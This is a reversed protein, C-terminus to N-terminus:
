GLRPQADASVEEPIEFPVLGDMAWTEILSKHQALQKHWGSALSLFRRVTTPTFRISNKAAGAIYFPFRIERLGDDGYIAQLRRLFEIDGRTRTPLFYGMRKFVSRKVLMTVPADGVFKGNNELKLIGSDDLRLHQTRVAQLNSHRLMFLVQTELRRPSSYDGCDHFAIFDGRAVKIALNRSAYPGCNQRATIVRVRSDRIGALIEGTQDSSCDNVVLVEINKYTSSLINEITNSVDDAQNYVTLVVSVKPLKWPKAGVQHFSFDKELQKLRLHLPEIGKNSLQDLRTSLLYLELSLGFEEFLERTVEQALSMNGAKSCFYAFAIWAQQSARTSGFFSSWWEKSPVDEFELAPLADLYRFCLDLAARPKNKVLEILDPIRFFDSRISAGAFSILQEYNYTAYLGSDYPLHGAVGRELASSLYHSAIFDKIQQQRDVRADWRLCNPLLDASIGEVRIPLQQIFELSTPQSVLGSSFDVALQSYVELWRTSFKSKVGSSITRRLLERKASQVQQAVNKLDQDSPLTWGLRETMNCVQIAQTLCFNERNIKLSMLQQFFWLWSGGLGSEHIVQVQQADNRRFEDYLSSRSELQDQTGAPQEIQTLWSKARPIVWMSVGRNKAAKAFWVDAMGPDGFENFDLGWKAQNFLTTGTGLVTAPTLFPEPGSFHYLYRNESISTVVEPLVYGHVGVACAGGSLKLYRLLREVYDKPYLIDDDVTAYFKLESENLFYFKGNDRLDGTVQSRQVVIKPDDLFSPVSPYGNLYVGLQGCQPLLAEVVLRLSEIRSPISALGIFVQQQQNGM